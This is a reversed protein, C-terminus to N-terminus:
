LRGFHYVFTFMINGTALIRQKEKSLFCMQCYLPPICLPYVIPTSYFIGQCGVFWWPLPIIFRTECRAHFFGIM